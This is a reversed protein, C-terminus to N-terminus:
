NEFANSWAFQSLRLSGSTIIVAPLSSMTWPQFIVILEHILGFSFSADNKQQWLKLHVFQVKSGLARVM